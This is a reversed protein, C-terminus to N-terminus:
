DALPISFRFVTGFGLISQLGIESGLEQCLRQVIQLGLGHGQANAADPTIPQRRQKITDILNVFNAHRDPGNANAIGPGTDYIRVYCRTGSRRFSLTVQTGPEAYLIANNALNTIARRLLMENAFVAFEDARVAFSVDRKGAMEHFREHFFNSLEMVELRRAIPTTLETSIKAQQIIDGMMSRLEELGQDLSVLLQTPEADTTQDLLQHVLGSLGLLPVKFDHNADRLTANRKALEQIMAAREASLAELQANQTALALAQQEIQANKATLEAVSKAQEAAEGEANGLAKQTEAQQAEQNTLSEILRSTGWLLVIVTIIAKVPAHTFSYLGHLAAAILLLLLFFKHLKKREAISLSQAKNAAGSTRILGILGFTPWSPPFGFKNCYLPWSVRAIKLTLIFQDAIAFYETSYHQTFFLIGLCDLLVDYFCIEQIDRVLARNGFFSIALCLAGSMGIRVMYYALTPEMKRLYFVAVIEAAMLTLWIFAGHVIEITQSNKQDPHHM